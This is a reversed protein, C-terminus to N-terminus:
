LLPRWAWSDNKGGKGKYSVKEGPQIIFGCPSSTAVSTGNSSFDNWARVRVDFNESGSSGFISVWQAQGSKNMVWVNPGPMNGPSFGTPYQGASGLTVGCGGWLHDNANPNSFINKVGGIPINGIRIPGGLHNDIADTLNSIAGCTIDNYACTPDAQVIGTTLVEIDVSFDNGNTYDKLMLGINGNGGAIYGRCMNCRNLQVAIKGTNIGGCNGTLNLPSSYFANMVLAQANKQTSNNKVNISVEFNNSPDKFDSRGFQVAVGNVNTDIELNVFRGWFDNQAKTAALLVCPAPVKDTFYIRSRGIGNFDVDCGGDIFDTTDFHVQKACHYSNGMGRLRMKLYMHARFAQQLAVSCDKNQVTAGLFEPYFDGGIDQWYAGDATKVHWPQVPKPNKSLRTMWRLPSDGEIEYSIICIVKTSSGVTTAFTSALNELFLCTSTDSKPLNTGNIKVISIDHHQDQGILKGELETGDKLIVNIEKSDKMINSNTLIYGDSSIISGMSQNVIESEGIELVENFLVDGINEEPNISGKNFNSHTKINKFQVCVSDSIDQYRNIIFEPGVPEISNCFQVKMVMCVILTPLYVFINSSSFKCFKFM